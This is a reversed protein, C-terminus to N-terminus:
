DLTIQIAGNVAPTVGPASGGTFIPTDNLQIARYNSLDGYAIVATGSLNAASWASSVWGSTASGNTATSLTPTAGVDGTILFGIIIPNASSSTSQPFTIQGENWVKNASSDLTWGKWTYAGNAAAPASMVQMAYGGYEGSVISNPIQLATIGTGVGGTFGSVTFNADTLSGSATGATAGVGKILHIGHRMAASSTSDSCFIGVNGAADTAINYIRLNSAGALNSTTLSTPTAGNNPFLASLLKRSVATTFSGM